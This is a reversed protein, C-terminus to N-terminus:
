ALYGGYIISIKMLERYRNEWESRDKQLRTLKRSINDIYDRNNMKYLKDAQRYLSRIM